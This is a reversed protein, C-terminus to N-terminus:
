VQVLLTRSAPLRFTKRKQVVRIASEGRKEGVGHTLNGGRPRKRGRSAAGRTAPQSVHTAKGGGGRRANKSGRSRRPQRFMVRQRSSLRAFSGSGRNGSPRSPFNKKILLPGSISLSVPPSFPDFKELTSWVRLCPM